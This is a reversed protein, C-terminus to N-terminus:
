RRTLQTALISLRQSVQRASELPTPAEVNMQEINIGAGAAGTTAASTASSTPSGPAGPRTRNLTMLLGMVRPDGANLATLTSAPIAQAVARRLVFEGPTLWAAVTDTGIPGSGYRSDGVFGGTSLFFGRDRGAPRDRGTSPFSGTPIFKLTDGEWVFRGQFGSQLVNLTALGSTKLAEITTDSNLGKALTGGWVESILGAETAYERAIGPGLVDDIQVRLAEEAAEMQDLVSQLQNPGVGTLDALAKAAEPGEQAAIRAAEEGHRRKVEAINAAFNKTDTVRKNISDVFAKDNFVQTGDDQTTTAEDLLHGVSPLSEVAQDQLAKIAGMAGEMAGRLVDADTGMATAAANFEAEPLQSLQTFLNHAADGVRDFKDPALTLGGFMDEDFLEVDNMLEVFNIVADKAPGFQKAFDASTFLVLNDKIQQQQKELEARLLANEEIARQPGVLGAVQEKVLARTADSLGKISATDERAAAGLRKFADSQIETAKEPSAADMEKKIDNLVGPGLLRINDANTVFADIGEKAAKGIAVNVNEFSELLEDNGDLWISYGEGITASEVFVEQGKALQELQEGTLQYTEGLERLSRASDEYLNAGGDFQENVLAVVDGTELAMDAFQEYSITGGAIRGGLEEVSIGLKGLDDIQDNSAFSSTEQIYKAIGDTTILLGGNLVGLADNVQRIEQAWEQASRRNLYFATGAAAIGVGAVIGAPGLGALGGAIRGVLPALGKAGTAATTAAGGIDSVAKAANAAAVAKAGAALRQLGTGLQAAATAARIKILQAIISAFKGFTGIFPGLVFSAVKIAAGFALFYAVFQGFGPISLLVALTDSLIRMLDLFVSFAGSDNMVDLFNLLEEGLRGLPDAMEEWTQKMKDWVNSALLRVVRDITGLANSWADQIEPIVDRFKQLAAVMNDVGGVEALRGFIGDFLDAVIANVERMVSLANQFILALKNQGAESSTFARFREAWEDFRVFLSDSENAGVQLIDFLAGTLNGLASFLLEARNYWIDFMNTLHGSDLGATTLAAWRDTVNRLTGAFREAAPLAAVWIASLVNGINILTPGLIDLIRLSSQMISQFRGQAVNGTLTEAALMAFAGVSRGVFLGFESFMPILDGLIFAAEDLAPLLTQQTATGIRLFEEGTAALSDKFDLLFDTESKFALVIPLAAVAASGVAAAAAVGLGGVATTLFGIQAVLGTAYALIASGADQIFPLAGVIAAGIGLLAGRLFGLHVGGGRGLKQLQEGVNDLSRIFSGKNIDDGADNFHARIKSAWSQTDKENSKFRARIRDFVKSLAGRDDVEFAKFLRSEFDDTDVSDLDNQVGRTLGRFGDLLDDPVIDKSRKKLTKGASDALSDGFNEGLEEGGDAAARRVSPNSMGKKVSKEIDKALQDTLAKIRVYATGVVEGAM